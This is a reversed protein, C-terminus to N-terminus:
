LTTHLVQAGFRYGIGRETVVYRPSKPNPEIKNRLRSVLVDVTRDVTDSNDGRLKAVLQERSLVCNPQQALAQLLTFEGYTLSINEGFPNHLQRTSLNLEWDDFLLKENKQTVPKPSQQDSVYACRRLLANVRATLERINFPKMLFDDAALELSLIRDSETGKGTLMLIPVQSTERIIRALELGDEGKLRLDIILLQYPHQSLQQLCQASDAVADCPYGAQQMVDVILERIDQEDDIVLIPQDCRRQM